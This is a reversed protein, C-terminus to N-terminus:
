LGIVFYSFSRPAVRKRQSYLVYCCLFLLFCGLITSTERIGQSFQLFDIKISFLYVFVTKHLRKLNLFYKVLLVKHLIFCFLGQRGKNPYLVAARLLTLPVTQISHLIIVFDAHFQPKTCESFLDKMSFKMKKATFVAWKM